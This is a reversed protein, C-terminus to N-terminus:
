AIVNSSLSNAESINETEKAKYEQAISKLHTSHTNIMNYLKNIDGQLNNFKTKYANAAEGSWVRGSLAQVTSTMSSTLSKVEGATQEFKTAAQTLKEPTVRIINAM